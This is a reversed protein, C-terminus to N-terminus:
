DTAGVYVLLRDPYALNKFMAKPAYLSYRQGEYKVEYRVSNVKEKLFDYEWFDNETRPSIIKGLFGIEKKQLDTKMITVKIKGPCKDNAQSGLVSKPVYYDFYQNEYSCRYRITKVHKEFLDLEFQIPGKWEDSM